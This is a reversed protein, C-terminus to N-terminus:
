FPKECFLLFMDTVWEEQEVTTGPAQNGLGCHSITTKLISWRM